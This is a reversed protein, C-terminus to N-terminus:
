YGMLVIVRAVGWHDLLGKRCKFANSLQDLPHIGGSPEGYPHFISSTLQSNKSLRPRRSVVLGIRVELNKTSLGERERERQHKLKWLNISCKSPGSPVCFNCFM